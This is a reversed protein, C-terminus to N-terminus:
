FRELTMVYQRIQFRNRENPAKMRARDVINKEFIENQRTKMGIDPNLSPHRRRFLRSDSKLRLKQNPMFDIAFAKWPQFKVFVSLM